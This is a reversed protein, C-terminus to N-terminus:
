EGVIVFKRWLLALPGCRLIGATVVTMLCLVVSTETSPKRNVVLVPHQNVFSNVKSAILPKLELDLYCYHYCDSKSCSRYSMDKKFTSDNRSCQIKCCVTGYYVSRITYSWGLKHWFIFMKNQAFGNHGHLVMSHLWGAAHVVFRLRRMADRALAKGPLCRGVHSWGWHIQEAHM